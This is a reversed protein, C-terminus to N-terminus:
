KEIIECRRLRTIYLNHGFISNINLLLIELLLLLGAQMYWAPPAEEKLWHLRM